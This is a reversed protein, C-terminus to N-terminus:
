FVSEMNYFRELDSTRDQNFQKVAQDGRGKEYDESAQARKQASNTNLAGQSHGTFPKDIASIAVPLGDFVFLPTINSDIPHPSIMSLKIM